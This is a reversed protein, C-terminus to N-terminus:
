EVRTLEERWARPTVTKGNGDGDLALVFEDFGVNGYVSQGVTEWTKCSRTFPGIGSAPALDQIIARFSLENSESNELGTPYLRVSNVIGMLNKLSKFMDKGNFVWQTINLGPGNDTKFALSSNGTSSRYVGEFRSKAQAKGAAELAPLITGSVMDSLYRVIYQLPSNDSQGSAALITFGVEHDPSLAFMSAYGDVNGAKTYLDVIRSSLPYSYIEWPAGVSSEPFGAQTLPKM